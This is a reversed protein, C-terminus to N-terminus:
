RSERRRKCGSIKRLRPPSTNNHAWFGPFIELALLGKRWPFGSVPCVCLFRVVAVYRVRCRHCQKTTFEIEDLASRIGHRERESEQICSVEHRPSSRVSRAVLTGYSSILATHHSTSPFRARNRSRLRHMGHHATCPEFRHGRGHSPKM